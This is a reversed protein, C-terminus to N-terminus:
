LEEENATPELRTTCWHCFELEEDIPKNCHPCSPGDHDRDGGVTGLGRLLADTATFLVLFSLLFRDIRSTDEYVAIMGDISTMAALQDTTFSLAIAMVFLGSFFLARIWDRIVAHGIGPFLLSLSAAVLARALTM